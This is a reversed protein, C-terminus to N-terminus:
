RWIWSGTPSSGYGYRVKLKSKDVKEIHGDVFAQNTMDLRSNWRHSVWDNWIVDNVRSDPPNNMYMTVQDTIVPNAKGLVDTTKEPGRYDEFDIVSLSSVSQKPPIETGYMNVFRPVWYSYGTIFHAGDARPKNLVAIRLRSAASPCFYDEYQFGYEDRMFFVFKEAFDHVHPGSPSPFSPLM